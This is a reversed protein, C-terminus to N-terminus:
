IKCGDLVSIDAFLILVAQCLVFGPHSLRSCLLWPLWLCLHFSLIPWLPPPQSRFCAPLAVWLIDPPSSPPSCLKGDKNQLLIALVESCYLKNADFPMKAQQLCLVCFDPLPM